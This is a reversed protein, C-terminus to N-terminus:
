DPLPPLSILYNNDCYLIELLTFRSIDPLYWVNKDSINIQTTNDPLSNLYTEINFKPMTNIINNISIFKYLKVRKRM